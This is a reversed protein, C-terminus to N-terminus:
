LDSDLRLCTYKIKNRVEWDNKNNTEMQLSTHWCAFITQPCAGYSISAADYTMYIIQM